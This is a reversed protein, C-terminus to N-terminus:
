QAAFMRLANNTTQTAVKEPSLSLVEAVKMLTYRIYSSENREGRHPVPTLYPSDTELVIREFPISPLVAPIASKKFTVIGNVGIMFREFQLMLEAEESDGTFSHFIGRLATDKYPLLVKYIYHIAKRCHVVIPLNMELAWKIQTDFVELQQELFTDDWYLDIGIEGVAVFKDRHAELCQRVQQLAIDFNENVSTPHLGMMPFCYGNNDECVQLLRDLTTEDINPMYIRSVGEEKARKLVEARDADFEETFLHSHTDIMRLM